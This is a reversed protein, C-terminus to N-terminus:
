GQAPGDDEEQDIGLEEAWRDLVSQALALTPGRSELLGDIPEGQAAAVFVGRFLSAARVLARTPEVLEPPLELIHLKM